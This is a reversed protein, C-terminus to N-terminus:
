AKGLLKKAVIVAENADVAYADAGIQEAFVANLPAGGVMIRVKDRIGADEVAKIVEKMYDMTTTLLASLTLMDADNEVVAKVFTAADVNIGLNIVEFGSGEFMSAVLNKGIDHLDGKVTGIVVKGYSISTDGKMLPKLIDLCGKMARASMLLNPVFAKGESFRAGIIEMGKILYDNIITQPQVGADLAQQTLATAGNLNGAVIADTLEQLNM